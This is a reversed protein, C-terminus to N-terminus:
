KWSDYKRVRRMLVKRDVISLEQTFFPLNCKILADRSAISDEEMSLSSSRRIIEKQFFEYRLSYDKGSLLKPVDIMVTGEGYDSDLSSVDALVERKDDTENENRGVLLKLRFGVEARSGEASNFEARLRFSFGDASSAVFKDAPILMEIGENEKDVQRDVQFTYFHNYTHVDVLEM